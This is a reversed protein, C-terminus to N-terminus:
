QSSEKARRDKSPPKLPSPKENHLIQGIRRLQQVDEPRMQGSHDPAASLIVNAAGRKWGLKIRAVVAEAPFPHSAAFKKGSGYTFWCSPGLPDTDYGGVRSQSVLCFEYPLYWTKGDITRLPKHGAAPPLTMEGDIVDTPFSSIQTGDQVYQNFEVLCNPQLSKLCDYIERVSLDSPAWCPMDIWFYPIEGYRTALEYLQALIVARANRDPKWREGGWLCYYFAPVVRQRRCERVFEKCVDTTNGSEAVDFRTTASDWLLFGSTHRTTLLAFKMGAAKFASVWGAVNLQRPNYVKPDRSKCYEEGTFQNTNFCVFAGLRYSEWKKLIENPKSAPSHRPSLDLRYIVDGRGASQIRITSTSGVRTERVTPEGASLRAASLLLALAWLLSTRMTHSM